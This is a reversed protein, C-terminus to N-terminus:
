PEVVQVNDVDVSCGAPCPYDANEYIGARLHDPISEGVAWPSPVDSYKGGPLRAQEARLTAVHFTPSVENADGFNGDGNLDAYVKVSGLRPDRSYTVDFAFRTWNYQQAPTAWLDHWSNVLVWDGDRVELDLMPGGSQNDYPETQKMQMVVRWESGSPDVGRGLRISMYTVRRDGERYFVTPGPGPGRGADRRATWNFGLECREGYVDDGDEVTVHRYSDPSPQAAGLATPHPDGTDGRARPWPWRVGSPDPSTNNLACDLAENWRNWFGINPSSGTDSAVVRCTPPLTMGITSGPRSLPCDASATETRSNATGGSSSNYLTKSGGCSTLLAAMAAALLVLILSAPLRM